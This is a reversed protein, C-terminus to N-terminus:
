ADKWQPPRKELFADIGERADTTRMVEDLYLREVAELDRRFGARMPLRVARMAHRLAVASRPQLQSAIWAAAAAGPDESVYDVLGVELADEASVIRGTVCLMEAVPRSVRERLVLSGVPPFVGLCIEPLGLQADPAAFIWNCFAALELGGGLCRGRVVAILPIAAEFLTRFLAHFRPLATDIEGPRHEQIKAGYSFHEGAGELIVAKVGPEAAAAEVAARLADVMANDLLNAPPADLVLRRTATTRHVQLSGSM